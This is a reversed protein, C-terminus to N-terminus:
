CFNFRGFYFTIFDANDAIFGFLANMFFSAMALFEGFDFDGFDTLLIFEISHIDLLGSLILNECTSYPVTIGACVQRFIKNKNSTFRSM